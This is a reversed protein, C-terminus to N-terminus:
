CTQSIGLGLQTTTTMKDDDHHSSHVKRQLEGTIGIDSDRYIPFFHKSRNNGFFVIGRKPQNLSPLPTKFQDYAMDYSKEQNKMATQENLNKEEREMSICVQKYNPSSLHPKQSWSM